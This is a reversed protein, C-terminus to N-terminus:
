STTNSIIITANEIKVEDFDEISNGDRNVLNLRDISISSEGEAIGKFSFSFLIGSGNIQQVNANNELVIGINLCGTEQNTYTIPQLGDWINGLTFFEDQIEVLEPDFTIEVAVGFLESVDVINVSLQVNEDVSITSEVPTITVSLEKSSDELDSCSFISICTLMSLIIIHYKKM